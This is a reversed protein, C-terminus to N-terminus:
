DLVRLFSLYIEEYKRMNVPIDLFIQEATKRGFLNEFLNKYMTCYAQIKESQKAIAAIRAEEQMMLEFANEYNQVTKLDELDLTLSLGNTQWKM